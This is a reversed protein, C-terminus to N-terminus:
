LTQWVEIPGLSADIDIQRHRVSELAVMALRVDELDKIPRALQGLVEDMFSDIETLVAKYRTNMHRCILTRWAKVEVDLSQKLPAAIGCVVRLEVVCKVESVVSFKWVSLECVTQSSSINPEGM